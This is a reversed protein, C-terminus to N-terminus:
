LRTTRTIEAMKGTDAEYITVVVADGGEPDTYKVLLRDRSELSLEVDSSDGGKSILDLTKKLDKLNFKPM